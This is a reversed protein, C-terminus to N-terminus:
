PKKCCIPWAACNWYRVRPPAGVEKIAQQVAKTATGLDQGTINASVTIIRCPSIRDYGGLITSLRLTAVDGLTLRLQNPVMPVSLMDATFSM